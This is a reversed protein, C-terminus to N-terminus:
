EGNCSLTIHHGAMSLTDNLIERINEDDDVVLIRLKENQPQLNQTQNEQLNPM